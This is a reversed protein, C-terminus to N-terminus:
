FSFLHLLKDLVIGEIMEILQKCKDDNNKCLYLPSKQNNEKNM